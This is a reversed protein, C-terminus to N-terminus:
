ALNLQNKKKFFCVRITLLYNLWKSVDKQLKSVIFKKPKTIKVSRKILISGLFDTIKIKIFILPNKHM